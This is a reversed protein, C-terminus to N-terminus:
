KIFGLTEILLGFWKVQAGQFNPLTRPDGFVVIERRQQIIQPQQPQILFAKPLRFIKGVSGGVHPFIQKTRVM